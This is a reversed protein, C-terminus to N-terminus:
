SKRNIFDKIHRIKVKEKYGIWIIFFLLFLSNVAIKTILGPYQIYKQIFYIGLAVVIYIGMSKLHYPIAYFRRSLAYSVGTMVMYCSLTAWAAGVYGYKPILFVNFSVTVGAGIFAILAGYGTRNSLKYWISLNYVIGLFLNAILIVPVINLGAHFESGIFFKVVDLYLTVFLFIVLGFLFFYKMVRAYVARADLDKMKSFYFPEAAYRFMQIFITMLMGIKYNAGYIGIQSLAEEKGPILMKLLFKDAVENIAGALGVFLLPFSYRLIRKLLSFDFLRLNITIDPLLLILTLLSALLNAIFVYGVGISPNYLIVIGSDPYHKQLFPFIGFFVLNFFLNAIVNFIKLYGFRKAKEQQRLKAFPVASFADLAVVCSFLLILYSRDEYQLAEAISPYLFYILVLFILTTGFISTMINSFVKRPDEEKSFRFFGTETGYTLLILLFVIYAYLENVIGYQVDKFIRTYVPTLVFYNLFRPVITGLGYVLTQGALKRYQKM